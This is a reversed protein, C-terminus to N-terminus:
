FALDSESYRLGCLHPDIKFGKSFLHGAGGILWRILLFM